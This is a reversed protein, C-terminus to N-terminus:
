IEEKGLLGKPVIILIVIILLLTFVGRLEPAIVGTTITELFGVIHAAVLSGMISGIGGVIVVAVATILPFVWMHPDLQTYTAFFVGAIAGLAGSLAWTVINIKSPDIGSILSGKTDMSVARIARGLQTKHVFVLLAGLVIWSVIMALFINKSITVGFLHIVGPILPWMSRPAPSFILIIVAQMVVALILTSIEVAIPNDELRRVLVLYTLIGFAVGALVAGLFSPIKPLALVQALVYYAYGGIMIYVGYALNLVRGVSFIMTFGVAILAYLGSLLFGQIIIGGM